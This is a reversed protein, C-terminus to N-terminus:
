EEGNSNEKGMLHNALSFPNGDNPTFRNEDNPELNNPEFNNPEFNNPEFNNNKESTFNNKESTFNNKESTENKIEEKIEENLCDEFRSSDEDSEEKNMDKKRINEDSGGEEGDDEERRNDDDSHCDREEEEGNNADDDNINDDHAGSDRRECEWLVDRLEHSIDGSIDGSAGGSIGGELDGVFMGTGFSLGGIQMNVKKDNTLFDFTKPGLKKMVLSPALKEVTTTQKIIKGHLDLKAPQFLDREFRNTSKDNKDDQLLGFPVANVLTSVPIPPTSKLSHSSHLSHYSTPQYSTPQYSTPVTSRINTTQHYDRMQYKQNAKQQKLKRQNIKRRKTTLSKEPAIGKKTIMKGDGGEDGHEKLGLKRVITAVKSVIRKTVMYNTYKGTEVNIGGSSVPGSAGPVRRSLIIDKGGGGGGGGGILGAKEVGGSTTGSFYSGAFRAGAISIAAALAKKMMWERGLRFLGAVGGAALFAGFTALEEAPIMQIQNGKKNWRRGEISFGPRSVAQKTAIQREEEIKLKKKAESEPDYKQLLELAKANNKHEELREEKTTKFKEVLEKLNREYEAKKEREEKEKRVNEKAKTEELRFEREAEFGEEYFATTRYFSETDTVRGPYYKALFVGHKTFEDMIPENLMSDIATPSVEDPMTPSVEDYVTRENLTPNETTVDNRSSSSVGNTPWHTNSAGNNATTPSNGSGSSSSSSSSGAAKFNRVGLNLIQMQHDSFSDADDVSFWNM